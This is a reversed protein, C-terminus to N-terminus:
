HYLLNPSGLVLCVFCNLLFINLILVIFHFRFENMSSKLFKKNASSIQFQIQSLSRLDQLYFSNIRFLKWVVAIYIESGNFLSSLLMKKRALYPVVSLFRCFKGKLFFSYFISTTELKMRGYVRRYWGLRKDM